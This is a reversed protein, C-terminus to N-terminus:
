NDNNKKFNFKKFRTLVIINHLKVIIKTIIKSSIRDLLIFFYRDVSSQYFKSYKLNLNRNTAKLTPYNKEFIVKDDEFAATSNLSTTAKGLHIIPGADTLLIKKEVNILKYFMIMDNFYGSLDEPVLGIKILDDRWFMNVNLTMGGPLRDFDGYKSNQELLDSNSLYPIVCGLEKDNLLKFKMKKISNKDVFIDNASLVIIKSNFNNISYEVGQNYGKSFSLPTKSYVYFANNNKLFEDLTNNLYGSGDTVIVNVCANEKYKLVCLFTQHLLVQNNSPNYYNIVVDVIHKVNV